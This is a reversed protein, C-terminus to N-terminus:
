AHAALHQHILIVVRAGEGVAAAVRKVAGARVDGVAYIGPVSTELDGRPRGEAPRATPDETAEGVPVHEGTLVSGWQDLALAGGLWDTRPESGILVFLVGTVHEETGDDLDRLVLAELVDDGIGDVIQVRSRVDVNSLAALERVLYDSMTERLGARRVLLTVRDAYRSLFVAAQGASNGGGAIFVHRGRMARAESVAASYFVGRGVLQELAPVGLRRYTAGTAVVVTRATIASGDSLGLRFLDGDRELSSAARMFRFDTGFAWAQQYAAFTLRGGSLGTPFGLYNRILSSTGAQGGIAEAEVVVTRLGESAAYVAAGLGAPGSGVIAVDVVVDPDVHEMLGFAIAIDLDSPDELITQDPTFRLQVVPLRPSVLGLDDLMTQGAETQSDVFLLPIRNRRFTDRLEHCRPSWTSGIMRVAHFGTGTRSRWHELLETVTRHFEEDPEVEPGTVWKDLRGVAIADFIPEATQWDGWRVVAVRTPDGHRRGVGALVELGDEDRAGYGVMVLAARWDAESVAALASAVEAPDELVQVRYDHEYRSTLQAAVRRRLQEDRSAFILVPHADSSDASDAAASESGTGDAAM